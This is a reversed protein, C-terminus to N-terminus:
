HWCITKWDGEKIMVLTFLLIYTCPCKMSSTDSTCFAWMRYQWYQTEQVSNLKESQPSIDDKSTPLLPLRFGTEASHRPRSTMDEFSDQVWFSCSSFCKLNRVQFESVECNVIDHFILHRCWEPLPLIFHYSNGTYQWTCIVIEHYKLRRQPPSVISKGHFKWQAQFLTRVDLVFFPFTFYCHIPWKEQM